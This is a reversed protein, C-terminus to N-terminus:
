MQASCSSKPIFPLIITRGHPFNPPHGAKVRGSCILGYPVARLRARKFVVWLAARCFTVITGILFVLEDSLRLKRAFLLAAGLVTSSYRDRTGSGARLVNFLTRTAIRDTTGASVVSTM